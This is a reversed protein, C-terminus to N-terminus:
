ERIFTVVKEEEESPLIEICHIRHWPLVLSRVEPLVYEVDRGDRRRPNECLIFQDRPEPLKEVEALIPDENMMHILVSIPM